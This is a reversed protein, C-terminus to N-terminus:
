KILVQIDSNERDKDEADSNEDDDCSFYEEVDDFSVDEQIYTDLYNEIMDSDQSHQVVSESESEVGADGNLDSEKQSM